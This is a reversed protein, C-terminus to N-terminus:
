SNRCLDSSLLGRKNKWPPEAVRLRYLRTRLSASVVSRGYGRSAINRQIQRQIQRELDQELREIEPEVQVEEESETYSSYSYSASRDDGM